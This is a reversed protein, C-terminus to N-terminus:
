STDMVPEVCPRVKGKDDRRGVVRLAGNRIWLKILNKVKERARADEPDLGLVEAVALGAWDKAQSSERWEGEALARKVADVHSVTVDELPDPWEWSAVVGIEDSPHDADGNELDVSITRFWQSAEAALTMNAKGNTVRFYSRRNEVGAKAAEDKTMANLARASRAASIMASAGRADQVTVEVDGVKRVHHVLEIACDTVDAIRSWERAVADIAANDNESVRHSSVFPDVIMVDIRNALITAKVAEVLPRQIAIKAGVMEAVVIPDNRGSNLFLRGPCDEQRVGYAKMTAAIRRELEEIPDEGNWIWVNLPEAPAIGHLLPRGTIMSVAEAIVLSSKGVGGAAVTASPYKRIYHGAYLWQRRPMTQPDRWSYPAARILPPATQGAPPTNPFVEGTAPDVLTGDAQEILARATAEGLAAHAAFQADWGERDTLADPPNRMGAELGSRLSARVSPWGDDRVLGCAEAASELEREVEARGIRGAGIQRGMRYSAANLAENRGGAGTSALEGACADLAARAFAREREGADGTPLSPTLASARPPEPREPKARILALVHAPLEPITGDAFAEALDPAEPDSRWGTGDPLTAGPAVVYGAHRVDIGAPLAGTANGIKEGAPTSFFVHLGENRTLTIPAGLAYLDGLLAEGAAVGDPGEGHRDLDLVVLGSKACDVAPLANPYRDWWREVAQADCSSSEQWRFGPQPRKDLSAPFIALGAEALALAVEANGTPARPFRIITSDFTEGLWTPSRSPDPSPAASM